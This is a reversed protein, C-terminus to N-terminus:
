HEWVKLPRRYLSNLLAGYGVRNEVDADDIIQADLIHQLQSPGILQAYSQALARNLM